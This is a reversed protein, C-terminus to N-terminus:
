KMVGAARSLVYLGAVYRPFNKSFMFHGFEISLAAPDVLSVNYGWNAYDSAVAMEIDAAGTDRHATLSAKAKTFIETAQGKVAGRVGPLTAIVEVMRKDSILNVKNAM